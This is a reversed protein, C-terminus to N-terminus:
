FVVVVLPFRNVNSPYLIYSEPSLWRSLELAILRPIWTGQEFDQSNGKKIEILQSTPIQVDSSLAEIYANSGQLRNWDRFERECAQCM